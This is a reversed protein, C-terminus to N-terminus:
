SVKTGYSAKLKECLTELIARSEDGKLHLASLSTELFNENERQAFAFFDERELWSMLMVDDPLRGVSFVFQDYRRCETALAWAWSPRKLVLDEFRKSDGEPLALNGIDDFRQLAIGFNEGFSKLAAITEDDAGALAAGLCLALSTLSGTKLRSSNTCVNEVMAAPITTIDTGLDIAQGLHANLMAEHCLRYLRLETREPLGLSEIWSFPQFYLFNGANLALPMGYKEHLTISGRRERSGDQIDDIILSGAHISELVEALLGCLTSGGSPRIFLYGARVLAARLQKSPRALLDEIPEYLSSNLIKHVSSSESPVGEITAKLAELHTM